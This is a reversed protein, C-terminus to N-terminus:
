TGPVKNISERALEAASPDMNCYLTYCPVNELIRALLHLVIEMKARDKFRYTQIYLQKLAGLRDLPEVRNEEARRIHVIARLPAEVQSGLGHKGNWPNGCLYIDDDTFRVFPKDDNIMVVESGYRERWLRTHTSKGTGSPAIFLYGQGNVSIASGHLYIINHHILEALAKKFLRTCEFFSDDEDTFQLGEKQWYDITQEREEAIEEPTVRLTISPADAPLDTDEYGSLWHMLQETHDSVVITRIGALNLTIQEIPACM